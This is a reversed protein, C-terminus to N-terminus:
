YQYTRWPQNQPNKKNLEKIKNEVINYLIEWLNSDKSARNLDNHYTTKYTYKIKEILEKKCEDFLTNPNYLWGCIHQQVDLYVNARFCALLPYQLQKPLIYEPKRGFFITQYKTGSRQIISTFSALRTDIHFNCIMHEHLEIIDNILPYVHEYMVANKEWKKFAAAKGSASVTPQDQVSSYRSSYLNVNFVNIMAILDNAKLPNNNPVVRGQHWEISKEYNSDMCKKIGEFLGKKEAISYPLVPTTTNKAAAIQALKEKSFDGVTITAKVLSKSTDFLEQADMIALQTHAGNVIGTGPEFTIRVKKRKKDVIKVDTAIVDIGLSYEYFDLPSFRLCNLMDRYPVSKLCSPTRVNADIPLAKFKHCKIYLTYEPNSQPQTHVIDNCEVEVVIPTVAAKTEPTISVM